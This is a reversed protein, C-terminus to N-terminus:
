QDFQKSTTVNNDNLTESPQKVAVPTIMYLFGLIYPHFQGIVVVFFFVCYSTSYIGTTPFYNHEPQIDFLVPVRSKCTPLNWTWNLNNLICEM